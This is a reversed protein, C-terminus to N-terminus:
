LSDNASPDYEEEKTTGAVAERKLKNNEFDNGAGMYICQLETKYAHTSLLYNIKNVQYYGGIGLQSSLSGFDQSKGLGMAVSNM